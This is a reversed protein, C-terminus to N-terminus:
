QSKCLFITPNKPRFIIKRSRFFLKELDSFFLQWFFNRRRFFDVSKKMKSIKLNSKEFNMEINQRRHDDYADAVAAYLASIFLDRDRSKLVYRIKLIPESIM